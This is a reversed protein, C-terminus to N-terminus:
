LGKVRSSNTFHRRIFPLWRLRAVPGWLGAAEAAILLWHQDVDAEIRRLRYPDTQPTNLGYTTTLAWSYGAYQVAQVVSKDIHQRQGVPYAFTRITHGLKEELIGRCATVEYQMESLDALYALVPHNMTHAGYSVLGEKELEMV